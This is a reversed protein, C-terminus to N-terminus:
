YFLNWYLFCLNWWFLTNYAICVILTLIKNHFVYIGLGNKHDLHAALRPGACHPWKLYSKKSHKYFVFWILKPPLIKKGYKELDSYAVFFFNSNKKQCKPRKKLLCTENLYVGFSKDYYSHGLPMSNLKLFKLTTKTWISGLWTIKLLNPHFQLDLTVKCLAATVDVSLLVNM